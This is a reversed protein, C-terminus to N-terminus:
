ANFRNNHYNKMWEWQEDSITMDVVEDEERDMQAIKENALGVLNTSPYFAAEERCIRDIAYEWDDNPTDKLYDYWVELTEKSIKVGHFTLLCREVGVTFERKTM